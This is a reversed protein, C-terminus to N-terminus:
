FSALPIGSFETELRDIWQALEEDSYTEWATTAALCQSEFAAELQAYSGFFRVSDELVLAYLINEEIASVDVLGSLFAVLSIGKDNATVYENYLKELDTGAIRSSDLSENALEQKLLAFDIDLSLSLSYAPWDNLGIWEYRTGSSMVYECELANESVLTTLNVGIKISHLKQLMEERNM